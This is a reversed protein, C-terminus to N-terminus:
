GVSINWTIVITESSSKNVVPFTTHCLMTGDTSANFIGAEVISGVFESVPGFTASYTVVSSSVTSSDLSVRSGVQNNLSTNAALPTTSSSGIGMHSMTNSNSGVYGVIKRAIYQRGTTVILNPVNIEQILKDDKNYKKISLEGKLTLRSTLDV